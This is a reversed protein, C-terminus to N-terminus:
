TPVNLPLIGSHNTFPGLRRAETLIVIFSGDAKLSKIPDDPAETTNETHASVEGSWSQM